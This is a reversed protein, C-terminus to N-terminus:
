RRALSEAAVAVGEERGEEDEDDNEEGEETTIARDPRLL